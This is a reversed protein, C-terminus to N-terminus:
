MRYLFAGEAYGYLHEVGPVDYLYRIEPLYPCSSVRVGAEEWAHTLKEADAGASIHVSLPREAYLSRLFLLSREKGFRETLLATIWEPVSYRLSVAETSDEGEFLERVADRSRDIRRLVGNVFPALGGLGKKKALQVSQDCAASAPVSDMYLLQYVGMRLILRVPLKIKGGKVAAYHDIVHDLSLRRETVGETLRRYFAKDRQEMWDYKELVATILESSKKGTKELELLTEFALRRSETVGM